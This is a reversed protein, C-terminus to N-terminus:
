LPRPAIPRWSLLPRAVWAALAHSLRISPADIWQTAIEAVAIATALFVPLILLTAANYGLAPALGLLLGAGLACLLPVHCLYLMFSIRGLYRCLPTRLAARWPPFALAAVTLAVAGCRHALLAPNGTVHALAFFLRPYAGDAGLDLLYPMGGLAIGAVLVGAGAPWAIREFGGLRRFEFVAVGCPFGFYPTGWALGAVGLAFAIRPVPGAVARGATCYAAFIALSGWFETPMTWLAPNYFDRGRAFLDVFSQWAMRMPDNIEFAPWLYMGALWDSKALPGAAAAARMLGAEILLWPLLSTAFIPLALRLWRRLALAPFSGPQAHVSAALVFGSLTFFIAVGLEPNYLAILPTGGIWVSADFHAVRAGGGLLAPQFALVYHSLVVMLAALGRLGDLEPCRAGVARDSIRM